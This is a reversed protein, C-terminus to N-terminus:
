SRSSWRYMYLLAFIAPSVEITDPNLFVLHPEQQISNWPTVPQPLIYIVADSPLGTHCYLACPVSSAVFHNHLRCTRGGLKIPPAKAHQAHQAAASKSHHPLGPQSAEDQSRVGSQVHFAELDECDKLNPPLEQRVPSSEKAATTSTVATIATANGRRKSNTPLWKIKQVLGAEVNGASAAAAVTAKSGADTECGNRSTVHRFAGKQPRAPPLPVLLALPEADPVVPDAEKIKDFDLM